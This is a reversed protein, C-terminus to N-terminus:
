RKFDRFSVLDRHIINRGHIYVLAEIIQRVLRWVENQDMTAVERDDILKRLTTACYEM